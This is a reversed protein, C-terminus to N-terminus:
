NKKILIICNDNINNKHPLDIIQFQIKLKKFYSYFRKINKPKRHIDEIIYYGDSNLNNFSNEFFITNAEFSHFGDDIIIDMKKNIKDWMNTISIKKTMDVQFTKIKDLNEIIKPDIDAGYIQSNTFYERWAKLSALPVYKINSFKMHFAVNEDISGLGVEFINLQKEKISSFLADYLKTYTHTNNLNGKDSCFKNMLKTLPNDLPALNRMEFIKKKNTLFYKIYLTYRLNRFFKNTNKPISNFKM